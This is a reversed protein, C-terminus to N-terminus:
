ELRREAMKVRFPLNAETMPEPTRKLGTKFPTDHYEDRCISSYRRLRMSHPFNETFGGTAGSGLNDSTIAVVAGKIVEGTQM